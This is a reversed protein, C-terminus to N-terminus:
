AKKKHRHKRPSTSSASRPGKLSALLLIFPFLINAINIFALHTIGMMYEDYIIFGFGIIYCLIFLPHLGGRKKKIQYNAQILWSLGTLLYGTIVIWETFLINM